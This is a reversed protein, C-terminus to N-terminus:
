RNWSTSDARRYAEKDVSVGLTRRYYERQLADHKIRSVRSCKHAPVSHESRRCVVTKHGCFTHSLRRSIHELYTLMQTSCSKKAMRTVWCLFESNRRKEWEFRHGPCFLGILNRIWYRRLRILIEERSLVANRQVDFRLRLAAGSPWHMPFVRTFSDHAVRSALVFKCANAIRPMRMACLLHTDGAHGIHSAIGNKPMGNASKM